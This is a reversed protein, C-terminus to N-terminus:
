MSPKAALERDIQAALYLVHVLASNISAAGPVYGASIFIGRAHTLATDARDLAAKAALLETKGFKALDATM